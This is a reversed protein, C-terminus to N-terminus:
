YGSGGRYLGPRDSVVGSSDLAKMEEINTETLHKEIAAELAQENTQSYNM